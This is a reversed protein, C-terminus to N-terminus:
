QLAKQNKEPSLRQKFEQKGERGEEVASGSQHSSNLTHSNPPFRSGLDEDQRTTDFFQVGM